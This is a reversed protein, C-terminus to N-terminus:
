NVSDIETEDNEDEGNVKEVIKEDKVVALKETLGKVGFHVCHERFTKRNPVNDKSVFFM